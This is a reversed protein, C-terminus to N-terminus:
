YSTDIHLKEKNRAIWAYSQEEQKLIRWTDKCYLKGHSSTNHRKLIVVVIGQGLM